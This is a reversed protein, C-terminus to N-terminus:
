RRELLRYGSRTLYVGMLIILGGVAQLFTIKESLFIYAFLVTFIPTFNGYIATKSNGVRKVSAYWIVYSIVLVFLASFILTAWAQFSLEVWQIEIIDKVAFPLYFVAGFAMTVATLKLPSIKELLPKSFVTYIAWLINGLFIMLIGRLNLWSFYFNGAQKTIVLYFGIFSVFIGMWAAWHLREQKISISLLAVFVPTMAMVISTSSATTWNLGYIFLLQFITNGIIGLICLKWFNSRVHSFGEKSVLLVIILILSALILRLGNFGLPSFERLAIKIFSFNIAWILVALLMFLDTVGFKKHEEM